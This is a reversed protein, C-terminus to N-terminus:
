PQCFQPSEGIVIKPPQQQFFLDRKHDFYRQMSKLSNAAYTYSWEEYPSNFWGAGTNYQRWVKWSADQTDLYEVIRTTDNEEILVTVPNKNVTDKYCVVKGDVDWNDDCGILTSAIILGLLYKMNANTQNDSVKKEKQAQAARSEM